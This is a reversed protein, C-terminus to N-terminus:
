FEMSHGNCSTVNFTGPESTYMSVPSGSCNQYHKMIANYLLLMKRMCVSTSTHVALTHLYTLECRCSYM